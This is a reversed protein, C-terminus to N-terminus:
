SCLEPIKPPTKSMLFFKLFNRSNKPFISLNSFKLAIQVKVLCTPLIECAFVNVFRKKNTNCGVLLPTLGNMDQTRNLMPSRLIRQRSCM